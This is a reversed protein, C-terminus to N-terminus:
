QTSTKAVSGDQIRLWLVFARNEVADFVTANSGKINQEKKIAIGNEPDIWYAEYKKNADLKLTVATNESYVIYDKGNSLMWQKDSNIDAIKMSSADNLFEQPLEPLVAMSGTAM